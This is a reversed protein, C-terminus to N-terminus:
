SVENTLMLSGATISIKDKKTLSFEDPPVIGTGTMLFVGMPFAIERTLYTLLEEYTRKMKATTTDEKYISEGNRFIELGIKLERFAEKPAVLIGPGIACSGDYCKAQPLYLPNEGEIDRSSVDNGATYGIIENHSNIVLVLEPEPVNWIADKRIRVAAHDGATRWGLTKFFIEPREASYVNSYINKVITESERADRSFEYTVGSAWIEQYDEVPALLKNNCTQTQPLKELVDIMVQFPLELLLGLTISDPLYKGDVAWRTSGKYM